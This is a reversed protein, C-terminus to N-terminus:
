HCSSNFFSHSQCPGLLLGCITKRRSTARRSLLLLPPPPQHGGKAAAGRRSTRLGPLLQPPPGPGWLSPDLGEQAKCFRKPGFCAGVQASQTFKQHFLTPRFSLLSTPTLVRPPRGRRLERSCDACCFLIQGSDAGAAKAMITGLMKIRQNKARGAGPAASEAQFPLPSPEAIPNTGGWPTLEEPPM